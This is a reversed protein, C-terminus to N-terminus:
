HEHLAAGIFLSALFTFVYAQLFAVMLELLSIMMAGFVSIASVGLWTSFAATAASLAIGLIAGLVLHGAVMNALLRVALVGHKIFLSLLELVFILLKIPSLYWPLDMHPVQNKLFGAVGFTRIGGAVTTIFVLLALALTVGFAGTPSGLWPVMGILNCGLIFFFMTWLFPLYDEFDHDGIGPKAVDNRVFEVLTELLNWMRGTPRDSQKMREALWIFLGAVIFAVVVELVMYKSLCFGSGPEYLNKPTGFPQPIVVKGNLSEQWEPLTAHPHQQRLWAPVQEIKEYKWLGKPIEFYYSDVVHAVPDSAM